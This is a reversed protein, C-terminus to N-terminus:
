EEDMYIASCTPTEWVEVSYIDKGLEKKMIKYFLKAMNEATPIEDMLDNLYQHDYVKDIKNMFVEKIDNFNMIMGRYLSNRALTIVIKYNHGHSPTNYCKGFTKRNEKDSLINICLRHSCSINFEKKIYFM